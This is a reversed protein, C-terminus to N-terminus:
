DLLLFSPTRFCRLRRQVGQTKAKPPPDFPSKTRMKSWLGHTPVPIMLGKNLPPPCWTFVFSNDCFAAPPLPRRHNLSVTACSVQRLIQMAIQPLGERDRDQM